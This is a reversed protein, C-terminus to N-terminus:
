SPRSARPWLGGYQTGIGGSAPRAAAEGRTDLGLRDAEQKAADLKAARSNYRMEYGKAANQLEEVRGLCATHAGRCEELEKEALANQQRRLDAGETLQALRSAIESLSSESTVAKVRIDSLALALASAQRSLEEIQGTFADSSKSFGAMEESIAREDAQAEAIAARREEIDRLRAAIEEEIHAGGEEGQRIEEEIRTINENNHFLHTACFRWRATGAAPRRRSSGRRM